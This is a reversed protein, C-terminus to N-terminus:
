SLFTVLIFHGESTAGESTELMGGAAEEESLRVGARSVVM